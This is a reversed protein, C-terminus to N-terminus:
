RLRNLKGVRPGPPRSAEVSHCARYVIKWLAGLIAKRVLAIDYQGRAVDSALLVAEAAQSDQRPKAATKVECDRIWITFRSINFYTRRFAQEKQRNVSKSVNYTTAHDAELKMEACHEAVVLVEGVGVLEPPPL